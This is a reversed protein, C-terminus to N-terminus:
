VEGDCVAERLGTEHHVDLPELRVGGLSLVPLIIRESMRKEWYEAKM